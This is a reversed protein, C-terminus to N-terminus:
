VFSSTADTPRIDTLTGKYHRLDTPQPPHGSIADLKLDIGLGPHDPITMRGNVVRASETTIESRWPVDTSMTELLYFNPICAALPLAGAAGTVLAKRGHLPLEANM